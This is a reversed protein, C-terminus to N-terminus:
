GTMCQNIWRVGGVTNEIGVLIYAHWSIKCMNDRIWVGMYQLVFIITVIVNASIACIIKFTLCLNKEPSKQTKIRVAYFRELCLFANTQTKKKM